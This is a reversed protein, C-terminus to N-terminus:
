AFPDFPDEPIEGFSAPLAPAEKSESKSDGFYINDSMIETAKRKNGDKDEWERIQLRGTVIAVRGKSFHQCVYEATNRWAVVDIFDTEKEGTAKNKFERTCAITFTTVAVGSATRKLEPDACLRGMITVRNLM